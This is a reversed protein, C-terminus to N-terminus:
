TQTQRERERERERDIEIEVRGERRSDSDVVTALSSSTSDSNVLVVDNGSWVWEMRTTTQDCVWELLSGGDEDNAQSALLGLGRRRRTEVTSGGDNARM